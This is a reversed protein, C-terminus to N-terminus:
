KISGPFEEADHVLFLHAGGPELRVWLGRDRLSAGTWNYTKGSLADAFVFVSAAPLDDRVEIHAESVGGGLNVIIVALAEKSRWRYAVINQWTDDSAPTVELIHWSGEHLVPKTAFELV